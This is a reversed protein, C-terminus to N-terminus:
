IDFPYPLDGDTTDSMNDKGDSSSGRGDRASTDTNRNETSQKSKILESIRAAAEYDESAILKELMKQLEPVALQEVRPENSEAPTETEDDGTNDGAIEIGTRDIIDRTTYIAAGTRMAIAVADSTRADLSITREGDSFTMESSFIGDEFKYIFVELLRVGFAHAFACFLDHTMPRPPRVGELRMAIAQAEPTGIIIPIRMPGNVEALLLAFADKNVPNFSIGMVKLRIRDEM